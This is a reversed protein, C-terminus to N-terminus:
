LHPINWPTSDSQGKIKWLDFPIQSFATKYHESLFWVLTFSNFVENLLCVDKTSM